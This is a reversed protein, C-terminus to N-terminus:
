RVVFRSLRQLVDQGCNAVFFGNIFEACKGFLVCLADQAGDVREGMEVGILEQDLARLDGFGTAERQVLQAVFVGVFDHGRAM